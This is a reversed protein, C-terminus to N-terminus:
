DEAAKPTPVPTPVLGPPLPLRVARRLRDLYTARPVEVVGLSALHPTSWQVDLLRDAAHEDRLREVLGVLAVKSADRATHFMSEGAFLGGVAVGYLGGVLEGDRWAEVSHAWGLEHLRLYAARIDEDIWGQPRRPDGCADVVAAFATDVRVDFDRCSRRLSRSVTLGDLPLVGRRVPCFWYMPDGPTGSPMPFLGQRYAALLTGPALDAGVAVLDDLPDYGAPDGFAWASPPPEVPVVPDPM